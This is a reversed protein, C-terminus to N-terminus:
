GGRVDGASWNAERDAGVTTLAGMFTGDPNPARGWIHGKDLHTHMDVFCPFVMAGAM